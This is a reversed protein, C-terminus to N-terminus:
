AQTLFFNLFGPGAMEINAVQPHQCQEILVQAVERPSKKVIKAVIMAINSSIDGFQQKHEDVNLDFAVSSLQDHTVGYVTVITKFFTQRITEVIHM